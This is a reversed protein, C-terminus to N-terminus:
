SYEKVLDVDIDFGNNYVSNKAKQALVNQLAISGIIEIKVM